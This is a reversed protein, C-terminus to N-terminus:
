QLLFTSSRVKGRGVWPGASTEEESEESEKSEADEEIRRRKRPPPPPTDNAQLEPTNGVDAILPDPGDSRHFDTSTSQALGKQLIWTRTHVTACAAVSTKSTLLSAISVSTVESISPVRFHLLM